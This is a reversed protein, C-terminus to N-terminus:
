SQASAYRADSALACVLKQIHVHTDQRPFLPCQSASPAVSIPAPRHHCQFSRLKMHICVSSIRKRHQQPPNLEMHSSDSLHTAATCIWLVPLKSTSSTLSLM